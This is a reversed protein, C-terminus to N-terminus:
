IKLIRKSFNFKKDDGILIIYLGTQFNSIDIENKTATLIGKQIIMGNPNYIIYRSNNKYESEIIIEQSAPNPYVKLEDSVIEKTSTIFCSPPSEPYLLEGNNYFCLFWDSYDFYCFGFHSIMGYNSGIGEVWYQSGWNPNGSMELKLRKRKDGNNLEITDIETVVLTCTNEILFSDNLNLGFDYLLYEDNDYEKLFVKKTSDQRLLQKSFQWNTNLSDNSYYVKNYKLNNTITDEGILISYSVTNPSFTPYIAINWQNGQVVLSQSFSQTQSIIILIALTIIRKM